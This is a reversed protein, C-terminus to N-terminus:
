FIYINACRWAFESGHTCVRKEKKMLINIFYVVIKFETKMDIYVNVNIIEYNLYARFNCLAM